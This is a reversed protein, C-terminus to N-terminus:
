VGLLVGARLLVGAGLLVEGGSTVVAGVVPSTRSDRYCSGFLIVSVAVFCM